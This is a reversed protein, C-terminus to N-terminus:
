PQDDAPDGGQSKVNNIAADLTNARVTMEGGGRLRITFSRTTQVTPTPIQTPPAVLTPPLTSTAPSPRPLVLPTSTSVSSTQPPPALFESIAQSLPQFSAGLLVAVIVLFVIALFRAM